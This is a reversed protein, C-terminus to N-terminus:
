GLAKPTETLEIARELVRQVHLHAAISEQHMQDPGRPISAASMLGGLNVLAPDGFVVATPTLCLDLEPCSQLLRVLEPDSAMAALAPPHDTFAVFRADLEANGLPVPGPFLQKWM